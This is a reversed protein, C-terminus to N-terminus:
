KAARGMKLKVQKELAKIRKHVASKKLGVFEGIQELTLDDHYKYFYIKRTTEDQEDLISKVIIQAEVQDYGKDMFVLELKGQEQGGKEM